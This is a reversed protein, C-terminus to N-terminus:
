RYFNIRSARHEMVEALCRPDRGCADRRHLFELQSIYVADKVRAKIGGDLMIDAYAETVKADLVQLRQSSCITREAPNQDRQCDITDIAVAPTAVATLALAAIAAALLPTRM